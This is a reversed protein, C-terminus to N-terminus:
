RLGQELNHPPLLAYLLALKPYATHMSCVCPAGPGLAQCTGEARWEHIVQCESSTSSGIHGLDRLSLAELLQPVAPLQLLGSLGLHASVTM